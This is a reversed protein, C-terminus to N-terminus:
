TPFGQGIWNWPLSPSVAGAELGVGLHSFTRTTPPPTICFSYHLVETSDRVLDESKTLVLFRGPNLCPIRALPFLMLAPNLGKRWVELAPM